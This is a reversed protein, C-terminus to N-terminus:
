EPLTFDPIRDPLQRLGEFQIDIVRFAVFNEAFIEDDDSLVIVGLGLQLLRHTQFRLRCFDM